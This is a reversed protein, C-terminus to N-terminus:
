QFNTKLFCMLDKAMSVRLCLVKAKLNRKENATYENESKQKLIPWTYGPNAKTLPSSAQNQVM